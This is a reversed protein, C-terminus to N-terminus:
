ASNILGTSIYFQCLSTNMKNRSAVASSLQVHSLNCESNPNPTHIHQVDTDRQPNPKGFVLFKKLIRRTHSTLTLSSKILGSSLVDYFCNVAM